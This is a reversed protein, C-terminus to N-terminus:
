GRGIEALLSSFGKEELRAINSIGQAAQDLNGQQIAGAVSPIYQMATQFQEIAVQFDFGAMSGSEKLFAIYIDRGATLHSGLVDPPSSLYERVQRLCREAVQKGLEDPWGAIERSVKQMAPIGLMSVPPTLMMQCEDRISKCILAKDSPLHDPLVLTVLRNRKGMGPVNLEWALELEPIPISEIGTHDTDYIYAYKADYGVLLLFHIPIHRQHYIEEYFDLHFMDLPGIVVPTGCDLALVAKKWAFKFSRNECEQYDARLLEALYKHQRPSATGWYVQRPPEAVNIRLYAFGGGQGLGFVFENSWDRGCRWEILDRIGNVPCMGHATRHPLTIIKEM